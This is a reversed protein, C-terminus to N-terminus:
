VHISVHYWFNRAYIYIPIWTYMLYKSIDMEKLFTCSHGSTLVLCTPCKSTSRSVVFSSSVSRIVDGNSYSNVQRDEQSRNLALLHGACRRHLPGPVKQLAERGVYPPPIMPLSGSRAPQASWTARCPSREDTSKKSCTRPLGHWDNFILVQQVKM